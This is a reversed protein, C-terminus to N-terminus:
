SRSKRWESHLAIDEAGCSEREKAHNRHQAKVGHGAAQPSGARDGPQNEAQAIAYETKDESPQRLPIASELHEHEAGHDVRHSGSDAPDAGDHPAHAGMMRHGAARRM